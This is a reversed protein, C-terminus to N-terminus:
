LQDFAAYKLAAFIRPWQENDIVIRYACRDDSWKASDCVSIKTVNFDFQVSVPCFVPLSFYLLALEISVRQM